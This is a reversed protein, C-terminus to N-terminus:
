YRVLRRARRQIRLNSEASSEPPADGRALGRTSGFNDTGPLASAIVSRVASGKALGALGAVAERTNQLAGILSHMPGVGAGVFLGSLIMDIGAPVKFGIANFIYINGAVSVALGLVLSGLLTIARKVTIYQPAKLTEGIRDQADMLREEAEQLAGMLQPYREDTPTTKGLQVAVESVADNANNLEDKMWTIGRAGGGVLKGVTLAFREYVDFAIEWFREIAAALAVFPTLAVSFDTVSFAQVTSVVSRSQNFLYLLILFLVVIIALFIVNVLNLGALVSPTKKVGLSRIFCKPEVSKPPILTTMSLLAFRLDWRHFAQSYCQQSRRSMENPIVHKGGFDPSGANM